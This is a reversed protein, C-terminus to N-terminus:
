VVKLERLGPASCLPRPPKRATGAQTVERFEAGGEPGMRSLRLGRKDLAEPGTTPGTRTRLRRGVTGKWGKGSTCLLSGLDSQPSGRLATIGGRHLGAAGTALHLSRIGLALM